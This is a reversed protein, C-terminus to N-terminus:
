DMVSYIEKPMKISQFASKLDDLNICNISKLNEEIENKDKEYIKILDIKEKKVEEM